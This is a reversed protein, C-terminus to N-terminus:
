VGVGHLRGFTHHATIDIPRVVTAALGGEGQVGENQAEGNRQDEYQGEVEQHDPFQARYPRLVLGLLLLARV